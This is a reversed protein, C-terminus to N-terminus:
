IVAHVRLFMTKLVPCSFAFLFSKAGKPIRNNTNQLRCSFARQHNADAFLKYNHLKLIPVITSFIGM